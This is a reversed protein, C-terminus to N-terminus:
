YKTNSSTWIWQFRINRSMLIHCSLLWLVCGKAFSSEWLWFVISLLWSGWWSSWFWSPQLLCVPGRKTSLFLQYRYRLVTFQRVWSVACILGDDRVFIFIRVDHILLVELVYPIKRFFHYKSGIEERLDWNFRSDLLYKNLPLVFTTTSWLFNNAVPLPSQKKM